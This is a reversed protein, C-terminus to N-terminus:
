WLTLYQDVGMSEHNLTLTVYNAATAVSVGMRNIVSKIGLDYL